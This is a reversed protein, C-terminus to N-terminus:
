PYGPHSMAYSSQGRLRGPRGLEGGRGTVYFTSLLYM